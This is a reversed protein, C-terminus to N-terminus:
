TLVVGQLLERVGFLGDVRPMQRDQEKLIPPAKPESDEACM